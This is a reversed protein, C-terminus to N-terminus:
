KSIQQVQLTRISPAGVGNDAKCTYLGFDQDGRMVITVTNEEATVKKIESENAKKWTLAPTPFGDSVCKLTVKQGIWSKSVSSTINQITATDTAPPFSFYIVQRLHLLPVRVSNTTITKTQKNIM